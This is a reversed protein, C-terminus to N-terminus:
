FENLEAYHCQLPVLILDASRLYALAAGSSGATDIIQYTASKSSIPRGLEACNSLWTNITQQPDTDIVQVTARTWILYDTLLATV